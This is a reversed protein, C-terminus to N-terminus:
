KNRLRVSLTHKQQMKKQKASEPRGRPGGRSLPASFAPVAAARRNKWAPQNSQQQQQRRCKQHRSSWARGAQAPSAGSHLEILNEVVGIANQQPPKECGSLKHVSAHRMVPTKENMM